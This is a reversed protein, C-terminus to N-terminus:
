NKQKCLEPLMNEKKPMDTIIEINEFFVAEKGAVQFKVLHSDLDKYGDRFERYSDNTVISIDRDKKFKLIWYDAVTRGRVRSLIKNNVLEKYIEPDDIIYQLNSDCLAVVNTFGKNRLAEVVIKINESHPTGGNEKNQNNWAVNSGDIYITDHHYFVFEKQEHEIKGLNLFKQNTSLIMKLREETQDKKKISYWEEGYYFSEKEWISLIKRIPIVKEGIHRKIIHFIHFEYPKQFGYKLRENFLIKYDHYECENKIGLYIADYYDSGNEFGKSNAIDWDKKKKFGLESSIYIEKRYISAPKFEDYFRFANDFEEFNSFGGEVAEYYLSAITMDRYKKLVEDLLISAEPGRFGM